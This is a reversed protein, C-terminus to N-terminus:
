SQVYTEDYRQEVGFLWVFSPSMKKSLKSLCAQRLDM